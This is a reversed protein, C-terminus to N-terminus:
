WENNAIKELKSYREPFVASRGTEFMVYIVPENRRVEYKIVVGNGYDDHYVRDGPKLVSSFSLSASAGNSEFLDEPIESLFRSPSM